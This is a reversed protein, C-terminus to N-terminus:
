QTNEGAVLRNAVRFGEATVKYIKQAQRKTGAKRVQTVLQPRRSMLSSLTDTTNAVPHGLHKLEVSIDRSRFGEAHEPQSQIFAAVLLVKEPGAKPPGAATFVEAIGDFNGIDSEEDDAHPAGGARRGSAMASPVQVGFRDGVYKLVRRRVEDELPELAECVVTIARIEPDLPM